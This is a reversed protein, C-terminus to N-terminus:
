RPISLRVSNYTPKHPGDCQKDNMATGCRLSFGERHLSASLIVDTMPAKTVDAIM